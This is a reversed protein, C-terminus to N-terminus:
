EVFTLTGTIRFHPLWQVLSFGLVKLISCLFGAGTSRRPNVKRDAQRLPLDQLLTKSELVELNEPSLTLDFFEEFFFFFGGGGGTGRL